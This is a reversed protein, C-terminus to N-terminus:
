MKRWNKAKPSMGGIGTLRLLWSYWTVRCEKCSIEHIAAKVRM